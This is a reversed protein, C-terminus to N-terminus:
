KKSSRRNSKSKTVTITATPTKVIEKKIPEVEALIRNLIEGITVILESVAKVVKENDYTGIYGKIYNLTFAMNQEYENKVKLGLITVLLLSSFEAIIEQDVQQGGRLSDGKEKLIINHVHHVLEHFYTGLDDSKMDIEHSLPNYSAYEGRVTKSYKVKINFRKAIQEFTPLNKPEEVYKIEKEPNDPLAETDEYRYEPAPRFGILIEIPENKQTQENYQTVVEYRKTEDNWEKKLAKVPARIRFSTSGKKVKRGIANWDDMNRGDNTGAAIMLLKNLTSWNDSPINLSRLYGRSINEVIEGSLFKNFIQEIQPKFKEPNYIKMTM